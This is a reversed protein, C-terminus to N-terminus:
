TAAQAVVRAPVGVVTAGDPVDETVAAGVGVTCGAGITVYPRCAAGAGVLSGAGLRVGGPLVAGPGVHAGEAVVADHEVICGTNLIALRGIRVAAGVVVRPLLVTGEAVAASAALVASPHALVPLAFGAALLAGAVQLRTPAAGIAVVAQALGEARLRPLFTSPHVPLGLLGPGPPADDVFAAPAHGPLARLLEALARGHGGAGYILVREVM